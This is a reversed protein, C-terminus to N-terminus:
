VDLYEKKRYMRYQEVPNIQFNNYLKGFLDIAHKKDAFLGKSLICKLNYDPLNGYEFVTDLNKINKVALNIAQVSMNIDSYPIYVEHPKLFGFRRIFKEILSHQSMTDFKEYFNRGYFIIEYKFGLLKSCAEIRKQLDSKSVFYPYDTDAVCAYIIYVPDNAAILGGCYLTELGPTHSVIVKM